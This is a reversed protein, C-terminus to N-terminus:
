IIVASLRYIAIRRKRAFSADSNDMRKRASNGVIYFSNLLRLSVYAAKAFNSEHRSTDPVVQVIVRSAVDTDSPLPPKSPDRVLSMDRM